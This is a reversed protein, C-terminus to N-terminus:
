NTGGRKASASTPSQSRHKRVAQQRTTAAPRPHTRRGRALLEPAADRLKLVNDDFMRISAHDEAGAYSRTTTDISSHGLTRRAVEYNGPHANLFLQVGLHRFLHPNIAVGVHQRTLKTLSGWIVGRHRPGGDRHPFLYDSPAQLLLPRYRRIFLNVMQVAGPPLEAELDKNNKVEGADFHLIMRAARGTGTRIVNQQLHIKSLNAIRAPWMLALEVYLATLALNADRPTPQKIKALAAFVRPPLTVLKAIKGPDGLHALKGRNKKTLGVTKRQHRWIVQRLRPIAGPPPSKQSVAISKLHIAMQLCTARGNGDKDPQFFALIIDLAEKAVLDDIATLKEPPTGARLLVSGMYRLAFRKSIISEPRLGHLPANDNDFPPNALYHLYEEISGQYAIPLADMPLTIVERKGWPTHLEAPPWGAVSKASKNWERVTTNVSKHWLAQLSGENLVQIFRALHQDGVDGPEYGEASCYSIFAGMGAKASRTELREYLTAWAPSLPEGRARRRATKGMARLVRRLISRINSFAEPTLGLMAPSLGDLRDRISAANAPVDIPAVGLATCFTNIAWRVDRHAREPLDTKMIQELVDALTAVQLPKCQKVAVPEIDLPAKLHKIIVAM